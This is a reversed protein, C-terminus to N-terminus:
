AAREYRTMRDAGFRRREIRRFRDSAEIFSM